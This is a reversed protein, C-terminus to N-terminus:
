RILQWYTENAGLLKGLDKVGNITYQYVPVLKDKKGTAVNTQYENKFLAYKGNSVKIEYNPNNTTQRIKQTLQAPGQNWLSLAENYLAQTAQQAAPTEKPGGGGGGGQSAVTVKVEQPRNQIETNEEVRKYPIRGMIQEQIIKRALERQDDTIKPQYTNGEGTGSFIMKGSVEEAIKKKEDDTLAATEAKLRTLEATEAKTRNKGKKELSEISKIVETNQSFLKRSEEEQSINADINSQLETEDGYFNAGNYRALVQSVMRDNSTLALVKQTLAKKTL